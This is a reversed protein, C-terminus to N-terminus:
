EVVRRSGTRPGRAAFLLWLGLAVEQLAIPAALLVWPWELRYPTGRFLAAVASVVVLLAGAIGWGTLARPLLGQRYLVTYYTMAGAGFWVVAVVFYSCDRLVTLAGVVSRDAGASPGQAVEALGLLAL